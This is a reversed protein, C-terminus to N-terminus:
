ELKINGAKVVAAWRATESRITQAFDEPTGAVIEVGQTGLKSRGETSTLFKVTEANMRAIIPRPTKAPALLGTGAQVQFDPIGAEEVTPVDPLVSLRKTSSVALVKLKGARVFPLTTPASIIMMDVRGAVVDTLAPGGGKFPVHLLQTKTIMALLEGALHNISSNGASAFSVKGPNARMYAILEKVSSPPVAAHLVIASSNMSIQVIPALDRQVDFPMSYLAPNITVQSTTAFLLTYGDPASRVVEDAGINGNAGPRNDVIVQHGFVESLHQTIPRAINDNPGGAAYGNVVRIPKAPYAQAFVIQPFALLALLCAAEFRFFNKM